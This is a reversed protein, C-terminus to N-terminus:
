KTRVNKIACNASHHPQPTLTPKPALPIDWLGNTDNYEGVIIVKGDKYIKIDYKTFLAVCDNNCLQGISILSGGSQLLSDFIHGVKAKTSLEKVLPVLM